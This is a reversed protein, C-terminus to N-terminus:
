LTDFGASGVWSVSGCGVMPRADLNDMVFPPLDYTRGCRSTRDHRAGAAEASWRGGVVIFLVRWESSCSLCWLLKVKTWKQIKSYSYHLQSNSDLRALRPTESFDEEFNPYYEQINEEILSLHM